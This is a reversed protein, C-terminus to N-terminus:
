FFTPTLTGFPVQRRDNKSVVRKPMLLRAANRQANLVASSRQRSAQVGGQANIPAFRRQAINVNGDIADFAKNQLCLSPLAQIPLDDEGIVDDEFPSFIGQDSIQSQQESIQSIIRLPIPNIPELSEDNKPPHEMAAYTSEDGLKLWPHALVKDMTYRDRPNVKLMNQILDKCQKSVTPPVNYAGKLIQHLMISTNSINWPNESTVMSFLIVGLSWVDALRGDYQVRCLCEPSCYCPSGCFTQMMLEDSLYGCLGFDSVKVRPFVDILINEPKLDRHAVGFSHCYAVAAAFQRFVLAATPEDFKGHKVMHDFLEGGPCLDMILYFNDDDWFFDHLAILNEHRIFAMANIERQFRNLDSKHALNNRPIVKCAFTKKNKVNYARCVVSFSGSGLIESFQYQKLGKPLPKNLTMLTVAFNNKTSSFSGSLEILQM